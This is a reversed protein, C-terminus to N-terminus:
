VLIIKYSGQLLGTFYAPYASPGGTECVFVHFGLLALHRINVSDSLQHRASGAALALQRHGPATNEEVIGVQVGFGFQKSIRDNWFM